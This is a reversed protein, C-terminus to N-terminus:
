PLQAKSIFDLAEAFSVSAFSAGLERALPACWAPKSTGAPADTDTPPSPERSAFHMLSAVAYPAPM